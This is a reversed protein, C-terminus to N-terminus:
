KVEHNIMCGGESMKQGWYFITKSRSYKATMMRGENQINVPRKLYAQIDSTNGGGKKMLDQKKMNLVKSYMQQICNRKKPNSDHHEEKIFEINMEEMVKDVVLDQHTKAKLTIDQHTDWPLQHFMWHIRKVNAADQKECISRRMHTPTKCVTEEGNFKCAHTMHTIEAAMKLLTEIEQRCISQVDEKDKDIQKVVKHVEEDNSFREVGVYKLVAEYHLKKNAHFRERM